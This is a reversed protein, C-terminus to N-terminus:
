PARWALRGNLLENAGLALLAALALVVLATPVGGPTRLDASRASGPRAAVDVSGPPLLEEFLRRNKPDPSLAVVRLPVGERRLSILTDTLTGVDNQDDELDSVLVLSGHEIGDRRLISRGLELGTSIKTGSTFSRVWPTLPQGFRGAPADEGFFRRFPALEASPTGPPLAEYATDSYVVLGFRQGSRAADDLVGAIQRHTDQSISTSVDLVLVGGAGSPLFTHTERDLGLSVALAAVALAAVGAALGIRVVRGRLLQRAFPRADALPIRM